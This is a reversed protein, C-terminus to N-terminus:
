QFYIMPNTVLYFKYVYVKQLMNHVNQPNNHSMKMSLKTNITVKDIKFSWTELRTSHTLTTTYTAHTGLTELLRQHFCDMYIQALRALADSIRFRRLYYVAVGCFVFWQFHLHCVYLSAPVKCACGHSSTIPSYCGIVSPTILTNPPSLVDGRRRSGPRDSVGHRIGKNGLM